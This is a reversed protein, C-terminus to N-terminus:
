RAKLPMGAADVPEEVMLKAGLTARLDPLDYVALAGHVANTVQGKLVRAHIVNSWSFLSRVLKVSQFLEPELAAAHLAPVGVHGVAVLHVGGPQKGLAHRAAVLVDEARMGVMSRGLMYAMFFDHMDPENALRFNGRPAPHTQGIDRLDVALVTDGAKVMKEIPGDPLADALMGQDNVYLVIRGNPKSPVFKLAPLYIGAEPKLVLKDIRYGDRPISALRDVQPQPLAALERIGAIKRVRDLAEARNPGSWISTRQGALTREYDENLDYASRAGPLKGVQGDPTCQLEKDTFLRISPEKVIQDKKLLWRSMWQVAGERQTANYNHGADNELIDVAQPMGLRTFLRKALRFSDWTGQIDFFDKTAACILVPSPARMMMLDAHDLGFALQDFFHQEADQPGWTNLLRWTSCLFCSPAAASIRDDLAMLYSTQTGGGSNGTCGIRQPDVEPRSQLYDIARMGDWIEYRATNRALLISGVGLMTHGYVNGGGPWGGQGLYQGREGQDIPDFVLAAMGNLALLAGVSQYEIWAKANMAHGCPVLVGPYPAKFRDADPVFLIATVFLKPQSEFIVKEVRYGERKLTGTIRPNLPTRPPLGGVAELFRARLQKQYAAIQEPTKRQEYDKQWQQCSQEIRGLLYRKMMDSARGDDIKEPLVRLEKALAAAKAKIEPKLVDCFFVMAAHNATSGLSFHTGGEAVVLEVRNGCKKLADRLRVSQKLPVLTDNTGHGIFIPPLGPRVYTIPNFMELLHRLHPYPPKLDNLHAKIDAIGHGPQDYGIVQSFYLAPTDVDPFMCGPPTTIDGAYNLLDIPGFYDAAAQVKSSVGLNGGTDGELEAVDGSTALLATLHGGASEGCAGFRNPDLHYKAANARLWRVAGKVDHIQAPFIVSADGWQGAHATLRYEVSAVAFGLEVLRPLYSHYSLVSKAGHRWGGGHIHIVLPVPKSVDTPLFLDLKLPKGGITAFVLDPYTPKIPGPRDLARLIAEAKAQNSDKPKTAPQGAFISSAALLLATLLIPIRNGNLM